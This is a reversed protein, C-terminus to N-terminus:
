SGRDPRGAPCCGRQNTDHRVEKGYDWGHRRLADVYEDFFGGRKPTAKIAQHQAQIKGISTVSNM